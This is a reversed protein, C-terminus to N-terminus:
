IIDLKWPSNGLNSVFTGGLHTLHTSQSWQPGNDSLALYNEECLRCLTDCIGLYIYEDKSKLPVWRMFCGLYWLTCFLLNFRTNIVERIQLGVQIKTWMLLLLLTVIRFYHDRQPWPPLTGDSSAYHVDSRMQGGSVHDERNQCNTSILIRIASKSTFTNSCYQWLSACAGAQLDRYNNRSAVAKKQQRLIVLKQVNSQRCWIVTVLM